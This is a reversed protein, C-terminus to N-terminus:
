DRVGGSNQRKEAEAKLRQEITALVAAAAKAKPNVPWM